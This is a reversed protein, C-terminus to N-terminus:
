KIRNSSGPPVDCTLGPIEARVPKGERKEGTAFVMKLKFKGRFRRLTLNGGVPEHPQLDRSKPLQTWQFTARQAAALGVTDWQESWDEPTLPSFIQNDHTEITWRSPELWVVQDSRNRIIVTVFCFKSLLSTAEPPFGRAEYFASMQIPTRVTAKLYVGEITQGTDASAISTLLAIGLAASLRAASITKLSSLVKSTRNEM